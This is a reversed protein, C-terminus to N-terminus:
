NHKCFTEVYASLPFLLFLLLPSRVCYRQSFGLYVKRKIKVKGARWLGQFETKYKNQVLVNMDIIKFMHIKTSKM